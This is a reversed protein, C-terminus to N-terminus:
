SECSIASASPPLLTFWLLIQLKFLLICSLMCTISSAVYGTLFYVLFEVRRCSATNALTVM